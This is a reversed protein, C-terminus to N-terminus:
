PLAPLRAAHEMGVARLGLAHCGTKGFNSVRGVDKETLAMAISSDQAAAALPLLRM